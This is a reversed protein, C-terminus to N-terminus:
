VCAGLCNLRLRDAERSVSEVQGAVNSTHVNWTAIRLRFRAGGKRHLELKTKGADDIGVKNSSLKGTPASTREKSHLCRVRREGFDEVCYSVQRRKRASGTRAVGLGSVAPGTDGVRCRPGQRGPRRGM